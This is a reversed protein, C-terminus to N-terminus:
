SLKSVSQMEVLVLMGRKNEYWIKVLRDSKGASAFLLGDSSFQLHFVPNPPRCHWVCSWHPLSEEDLGEGIDNLQSATDATHGDLFFSVPEQDAAGSQEAPFVWMQIM